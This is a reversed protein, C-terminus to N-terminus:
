MRNWALAKASRIATLLGNIDAEFQPLLGAVASVDKSRGREEIESARQLIEPIGLYGLEGKLTHATAEVTEAQGQKVADLLAALHKPAQDLFIDMVERFLAEDGGLQELTKSINWPVKSEEKM